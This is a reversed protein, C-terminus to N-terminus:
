RLDGDASEVESVRGNLLHELYGCAFSRWLGAFQSMKAVNISPASCHRTGSTSIGTRCGGGSSSPLASMTTRTRWRTSNRISSRCRANTPRTARKMAAWRDPTPVGCCASCRVAAPPRTRREAGGDRPGRVPCDRSLGGGRGASVQPDAGPVLIQETMPLVQDSVSKAWASYNKVMQQELPVKQRIAAGLATFKPFGSSSFVPAMKSWAALISPTYSASNQDRAERLFATVAFVDCLLNNTFALTNMGRTLVVGGSYAAADAANQMRLKGDVHRGVNM